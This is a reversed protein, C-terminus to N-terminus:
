VITPHVAGFRDAHLSIVLSRSVTSVLSQGSIAADLFTLAMTRYIRRTGRKLLSKEELVMSALYLVMLARFRGADINMDGSLENTPGSPNNTPYLCRLDSEIESPDLIPYSAAYQRHYVSTMNLADFYTAAINTEGSENSNPDNTNDNENEDSSEGAAATSIGGVHNPGDGEVPVSPQFLESGPIDGQDSFTLIKRTLEALSTDPPQPHNDNNSITLPPPPQSNNRTTSMSPPSQHISGMGGFPSMGMGMGMGAAMAMGGGIGIGNGLVEDQGITMGSGSGSGSGSGRKRERRGDSRVVGTRSGSGYKVDEMMMPITTGTTM